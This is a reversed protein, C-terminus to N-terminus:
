DLASDVLTCVDSEDFVRGSVMVTSKNPDFPQRAHALRAYDATLDIIQKRLDMLIDASGSM